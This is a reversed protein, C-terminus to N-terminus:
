VTHERGRALEHKVARRNWVSVSVGEDEALGQIQEILDQPFWVPV